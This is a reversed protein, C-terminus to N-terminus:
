IELLWSLSNGPPGTILVGRKWQLPGLNSGQDPFQSGALWAAHDFCFLFLWSFCTNLLPFTRSCWINSLYSVPLHRNSKVLHLDKTVKVFATVSFTSARNSHTLLSCASIIYLCQSVAQYVVKKFSNSVSM